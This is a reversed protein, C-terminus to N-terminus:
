SFCIENMIKIVDQNGIFNQNNHQINRQFHKINNSLYLNYYINLVYGIAQSRSKGAWCHINLIDNPNNNFINNTFDLISKAISKNFLILNRSKSIEKYIPHILNHKISYNTVDDFFLILVNSTGIDLDKYLYEYNKDRISIWNKLYSDGMYLYEVAKKYSFVNIYM